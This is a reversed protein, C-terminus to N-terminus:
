LKIDDDQGLHRQIKLVSKRQKRIDKRVKEMEKRMQKVEDKQTQEVGAGSRAIELVSLEEQTTYENGIPDSYEAEFYLVSSEDLQEEFDDLTTFPEPDSSFPIAFNHRDDPSILPNRWEEEHDMNRFGWRATVDHAAGKGTNKFVFRHHLGTWNEITSKLVPRFNANRTKKMEETQAMSQVVYKWTAWALVVTAIALVASFVVQTWVLSSSTQLIM